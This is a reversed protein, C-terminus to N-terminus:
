LGGGGTAPAVPEARRRKRKEEEKGGSGREATHLAGKGRARAAENERGAGTCVAGMSTAFPSPARTADAEAETM